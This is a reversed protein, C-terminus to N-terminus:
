VLPLHNWAWNLTPDTRGRYIFVHHSHAPICLYLAATCTQPPQERALALGGHWIGQALLGWPDVGEGGRGQVAGFGRLYRGRCRTRQPARHPPVGAPLSGPLPWGGYCPIRSHVPVEGPGGFGVAWWVCCPFSGSQGQECLKGTGRHESRAPVASGCGQWSASASLLPRRRRPGLERSSRDLFNQREM